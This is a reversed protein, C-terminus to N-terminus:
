KNIIKKGNIIVIGRYNRAVRQGSLNYVPCNVDKSNQIITSIGTTSGLSFALAKASSAETDSSRFVARTAKIEEGGRAKYLKNDSSVFWDGAVTKAKNGFGVFNFGTATQTTTVPEVTVDKFPYYDSSATVGYIIVPVNAKIENQKLQNFNLTYTGNDIKTAGTYSAVKVGNGFAKSIQEANLSFPLVLSNWADNNFTRHLTVNHTGAESPNSESNEDIVSFKKEMSITMAAVDVNITYLGPVDVKWKIDTSMDKDYIMKNGDNPDKTYMYQDWGLQNNICFKFGEKAQDTLDITISFKVPDKADQTMKISGNSPADWGWGPVASDGMIWLNYTKIPHDQYKSKELLITGHALDCTIDYNASEQVKFKFDKDEDAYPAGKILKASVGTTLYHDYTEARYEPDGWGPKTTFKFEKKDGAELYVSAKFVDNGNNNMIFCYDFNWEYWLADGILYLKDVAKASVTSLTMLLGVLMKICLHKM